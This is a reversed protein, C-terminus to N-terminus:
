PQVVELEPQDHADLLAQLLEPSLGQPFRSLLRLRGARGQPFGQIKWGSVAGRPVLVIRGDASLLYGDERVELLEGSITRARTELAVQAGRPSRVVGYSEASRGINICGALVSTVLVIIVRHHM